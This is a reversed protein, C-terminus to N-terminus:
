SYGNAKFVATYDNLAKTVRYYVQNQAGTRQLSLNILEQTVDVSSHNLNDAMPVM